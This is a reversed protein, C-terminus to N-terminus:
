SQKNSQDLEDLAKEIAQRMFESSDPLSKVRNYMSETVKVALMKNLPEDGGPTFGYKKLNPNGGKRAM